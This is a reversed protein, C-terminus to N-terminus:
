VMPEQVCTQVFVPVTCLADHVIVPGVSTHLPEVLVYVTDFPTPEVKAHATLPHPVKLPVVPEETTKVAPEASLQAYVRVTVDVMAAPLQVDTQVFVPVTCLATQEIVPGVSTQLPVVLVYVTDLPTPEVKAHATLPQPVNLAVVPDETTKVAPESSLQAYVRVTVVVMAAPLQVATQVFVPVTWLATQEM